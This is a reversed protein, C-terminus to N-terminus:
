SGGETSKSKADSGSNVRQSKPWQILELMVGGVKDTNLYAWSVGFQPFSQHFV